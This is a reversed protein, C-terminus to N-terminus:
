TSRDAAAPYATDMESFIFIAKIRTYEVASMFRRIESHIDGKWITVREKSISRLQVHVALM